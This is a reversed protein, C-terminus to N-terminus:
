NKKYREYASRYLKMYEDLGMKKITSIYSDWQDFPTAGTIFKDQMQNVYNQIDNSLAIMRENEQVTYTFDPWVEKILHPKLKETAKVANDMAEGGQFYQQRVIGPYSSGPYVLHQGVAQPVTLGKPNKNIDDVFTYKGESTKTFTEGEKGMFFLLSGEVGYFYDMWRVLAEPEKSAKTIVFPATIAVSPNVFTFLKDGYPGALVSGPIFTEEAKYVVPNGSVTSGAQNNSFKASMQEVNITLAEKDILGESYLKNTYQLLEKYRSEIPIFRLDNTKPDIDVFKHKSGKTGLGWSGKIYNLFTDFKSIVLPVEDPKGNGNPDGDKIKKLFQYLEETTQPDKLNLKQAWDKNYWFKNQALVSTFEPDFILPMSYINGDPMTIGKRIEPYKDMLQKLNPAYKDILGNLPIFAGQSGYNILDTTPLGTAYFADPLDNSVLTLNRRETITANPVLDWEVHIGSLKEYEKWLLMDKFEANYVSKGAFIKLTLPEKVIPMGTSNVKDANTTVPAKPQDSESAGCASLTAIATSLTITTSIIKMYKKM